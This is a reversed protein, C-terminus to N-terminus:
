KKIFMAHQAAQIISMLVVWQLHPTPKLEELELVIFRSNFNIPPLSTTFRRGYIGGECWPGLQIGIDKIEQIEHKMCKKAFGTVSPLYGDEPSNSEEAILRIMEAEQLSSINGNSSAMLKLQNLVMITQAIIDSEKSEEGSNGTLGEL